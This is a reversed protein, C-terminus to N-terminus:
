VGTDGIAADSTGARASSRRAGALASEGGAVGFQFRWALTIMASGKTGPALGSAISASPWGPVGTPAPFSLAFSPFAPPAFSTLNNRGISMSLQYGDFGVQWCMSRTSPKRAPWSQNILTNKKLRKWFTANWYIQATSKTRWEQIWEHLKERM